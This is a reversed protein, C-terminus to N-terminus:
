RKSKLSLLGDSQSSIITEWLKTHILWKLGLFSHPLYAATAWSALIALFSSPLFLDRSFHFFITKDWPCWPSSAAASTMSWISRGGTCSVYCIMRARIHSWLPVWNGNEPSIDLYCCCFKICCPFLKFSTLLPYAALLISCLLPPSSGFRRLMLSSSTILLALIASPSLLEKALSNASNLSLTEISTASAVAVLFTHQIPNYGLGWAVEEGLLLPAVTHPM